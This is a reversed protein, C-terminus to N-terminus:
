VEAVMMHLSFLWVDASTVSNINTFNIFKMHKDLVGVDAIIEHLGLCV